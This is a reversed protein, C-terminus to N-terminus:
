VYEDKADSVYKDSKNANKEIFKMIQHYFFVIQCEVGPIYIGCARVDWGTWFSKM